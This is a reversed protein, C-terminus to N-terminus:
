YGKFNNHHLRFIKRYRNPTSNTTKKFAYRYHTVSAFNMKDAIEKISLNTTTLLTFSAKIRMDNKYTIPTTKLESNFLHYLRSESIHCYKAVDKISYNDTLHTNIYEMAKQVAPHLKDPKVENLSPLIESFLLYFDSVALLQNVPEKEFNEFMTNLRKTITEKPFNTLKTIDFKEDFREGESERFSFSIIYFKIPNDGIAQEEYRSNSPIFLFDGPNITYTFTNSKIESQGDVQLRLASWFSGATNNKSYYHNEYSYLNMKFESLCLNQLTRLERKRM